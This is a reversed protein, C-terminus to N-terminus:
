LEDANFYKEYADDELEELKAKKPKIIQAAIDQNLEKASAVVTESSKQGEDTVVFGKGAELKLGKPPIYQGDETLSGIKKTATFANLNDIYASEKAPPVYVGSDIDVLGGPRPTYIEKKADFKAEKIPTETKAKEEMEKTTKVIQAEVIKQDFKEVTAGLTKNLTLKAVQEPAISVPATAHALNDSVGSYEGKEVIVGSKNLLKDMQQTETQLVQKAEVKTPVQAKEPMKAMAVKGRLTILSTIRSEPNYTTQFVTGRVGLAASRTKVLMKSNKKEKTAKEVEAKIKGTLLSVFQQDTKEIKDIIIKSNPGLTVQTGDEYVIIAFSKDHSLLSTDKSLADGEKLLVAERMGISLKTVEGKVKKVKAMSAFSSWNLGFCIALSILKKM